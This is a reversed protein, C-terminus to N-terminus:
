RRHQASHTVPVTSSCSQSRRLTQPGQGPTGRGRFAGTALAWIQGIKKGKWNPHKRIKHTRSFSRLLFRHRRGTLRQTGPANIFATTLRQGPEPSETPRGHSIEQGMLKRSMEGGSQVCLPKGPSMVQDEHGVESGLSSWKKFYSM